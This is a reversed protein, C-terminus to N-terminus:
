TKKCVVYVTSPLNRKSSYEIINLDLGNVNNQSDASLSWNNESISYDHIASCQMPGKEGEKICQNRGCHVNTCLFPPVCLAVSKEAGEKKRVNPYLMPLLPSPSAWLLLIIECGKELLPKAEFLCVPLM